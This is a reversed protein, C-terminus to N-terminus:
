AGIATKAIHACPAARAAKHLPEGACAVCAGRAKGICTRMSAASGAAVGAGASSGLAARLLFGLGFFSLLGLGLLGVGLL